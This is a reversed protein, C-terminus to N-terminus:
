CNKRIYCILDTWKNNSQFDKAAVIISTVYITSHHKNQNCVVLRSITGTFVCRSNRNIFFSPSITWSFSFVRNSQSNLHNAAQQYTKMPFSQIPQLPLSNLTIRPLKQKTLTTTRYFYKYVLDNEVHLIFLLTTQVM